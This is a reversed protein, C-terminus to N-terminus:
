PYLCETQWGEKEMKSYLLRQHMRHPEGQWFEVRQASLIYGGWFEPYPVIDSCEEELRNYRAILMDRDNLVASQYSAWAALQSERPRSYFYARSKEEPIKSIEGEIRVQRYASPWYFTLAGHPCHLIEQAKASTYNSFFLWGQSYIGKYLVARLAPKGDPRVTALMMVDDVDKIRDLAQYWDLFHAIPCSFPKIETM